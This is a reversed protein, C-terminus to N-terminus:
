PAGAKPHLDRVRRVPPLTLRVALTGTALRSRFSAAPLVGARRVPIANLRGRPILLCIDENRCPRPRLMRLSIAVSFTFSRPHNSYKRSDSTRITKSDSSSHSRLFSRHTRQRCHFRGAVRRRFSICRPSSPSGAQFDAEFPRPAQHFAPAGCMFSAKRFASNVRRPSTDSSSLKRTARAVDQVATYPVTRVTTHSSPPRM